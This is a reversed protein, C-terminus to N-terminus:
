CVRQVFAKEPSQVGFLVLVVASDVQVGVFHIEADQILLSLYQQVV